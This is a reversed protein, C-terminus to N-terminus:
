LKIGLTKVAVFIAENKMKFEFDVDIKDDNNLDKQIQPIYHVMQSHKRRDQFSGTEWGPETNSLHTLPKTKGWTAMGEQFAEELSFGDQNFSHHHSDVVVPISTKESISLLNRVSYSLEDNELTLRKKSSLNSITSILKASEGRTGGHINIAYFPSDDLEMKDFIWNHYNLIEISNKIVSDKQSSLVCFQSPHQTLRISNSKVFNGIEKLKALITTESHLHPVKDWMPLLNSSARFVKIGESFSRKIIRELGNLNNLWTEIIKQDSYQGSLFRNLQLNKEEALNIYEVTGNRKQKPVM